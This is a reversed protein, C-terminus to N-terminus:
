RLDAVFSSVVVLEEVRGRPFYDVDLEEGGSLSKFRSQEEKWSLGWSFVIILKEVQNKYVAKLRSPEEEKTRGLLLSSAM